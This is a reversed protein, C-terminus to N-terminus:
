VGVLVFAGWYYPHPYSRKLNLQAQKFAQAKNGTKLWIDYFDTMLEQTAQDSVKWLSMVVSQAGAVMFARQLGYVGEGNKVDGLGTECASLVVIDTNDLSLTVVELATLIGNDDGSLDIGIEGNLATEAGALMLGSRLLPEESVKEVDIGFVQEKSLDLSQIFFGHTAIHLLDPNSVRKLNEERADNEMFIQVVYGSRELIPKLSEIEVKTGPLPDISGTSGFNPFGVMWATKDGEKPASTRSRSEALDKSNGILFIDTHEIIYSQDPRRLTGINIQNYIGDLSVFVQPIGDLHQDIAEWYQSYSYEDPQKQKISNNYYNYYRKELQNGNELVVM